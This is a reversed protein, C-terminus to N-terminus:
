TRTSTCARRGAGGHARRAYMDMDEKKGATCSGRVRRRDEGARGGLEDMYLGNGPDGPLAVMPRIASADIEIVKM